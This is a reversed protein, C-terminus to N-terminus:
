ELRVALGFPKCDSLGNTYGCITFIQFQSFYSAIKPSHKGSSSIIQPGVFVRDQLPSTGSCLGGPIHLSAYQDKSRMHLSSTLSCTRLQELLGKLQATVPLMSSPASRCAHDLTVSNGTSCLQRSPETTSVTDNYQSRTTQSRLWCSVLNPCRPM